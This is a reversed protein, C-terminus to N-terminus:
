PSGPTVAADWIVPVNYSRFVPDGIVLVALETQAQAILM